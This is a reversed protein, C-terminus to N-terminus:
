VDSMAYQRRKRKEKKKKKIIIRRPDIVEQSEGYASFGGCLWL